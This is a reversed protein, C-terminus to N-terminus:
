SIVSERVLNRTDIVKVSHNSDPRHFLCVKCIKGKYKGFLTAEPPKAGLGKGCWICVDKLKREAVTVDDLQSSHKGM